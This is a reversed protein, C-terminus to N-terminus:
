GDGRLYAMMAEIYGADANFTPRMFNHLDGRSAELEAYRVPDHVRGPSAGGYSISGNWTHRGVHSDHDGSGKLSGTIVHVVRQTQLFLATLAADLRLDTRVDPGDRLRRLEHDVDSTDVEVDVSM